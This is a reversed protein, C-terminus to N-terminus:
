VHGIRGLRRRIGPVPVGPVTSSEGRGFPFVGHFVADCSELGEVGFEGAGLVGEVAESTAYGRGDRRESRGGFFIRPRKWFAVLRLWTRRLSSTTRSGPQPSRWSTRHRASAAREPASWVTPSAWRPRSRTCPPNGRTRQLPGEAVTRWTPSKRPRYALVNRSNNAASAQALDNRGCGRALAAGTSGMTKSWPPLTVAFRLTTWDKVAYPPTYLANSM